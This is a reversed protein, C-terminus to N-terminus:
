TEGHDFIGRLGPTHFKEPTMSATPGPSARQFTPSLTKPNRRIPRRVVMTRKRFEDHRSRILDGQFCRFSGVRLRQTSPEGLFERGPFVAEFSRGRASELLIPLQRTRQSERPLSAQLGHLPARSSVPSRGQGSIPHPNQGKSATASIPTLLPEM